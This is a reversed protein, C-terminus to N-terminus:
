CMSVLWLKKNKKEAISCATGWGLIKDSNTVSLFVSILDHTDLTPHLYITGQTSAGPAM